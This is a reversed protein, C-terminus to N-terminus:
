SVAQRINMFVIASAGRIEAIRRRERLIVSRSGSPNAVRIAGHANRREYIGDPSPHLFGARPRNEGRFRSCARKGCNSYLRILEDFRCASEAEVASNMIM